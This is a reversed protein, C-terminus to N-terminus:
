YVGFVDLLWYWSMVFVLVLMCLVVGGFFDCYWIKDFLDFCSVQGDIVEVILKGVFVIMNVGYGLFGQVFYMILMICGFYLVCNMMIDVFGGWVYDVKVDVFQLFMKLMDVCMVVVFDCLVCMLYSVKGGWVFWMDFVLWFYDFVFCSDCIVVCVFMLVVVCVEGFLEIVIVYIGVLMIKRLLVFVFMGVYINCVFVVFCVCVNGGGMEVVYGGVVDCVCIVCSDEYICVGVDIVVWVFGFMYNFLYFYGSDFDYLGGCYCVLQVYDGFEDVEVFYFCDYGFCKVVEDCWCKLVDVDCEINVVILYGFVLVCDIDYWVICLKVFLLMEFGMDWICKVDGELMFQVFMDIDCVFGGILQGGNCGSVVWGVWLVEFVIVLYGCEVFNFVVFLGMFGVGIVCVDVDIMGVFLVYCIMDNVIVVYYLVVYLQNVFIQMILFVFYFFEFCSVYVIICCGLNLCLNDGYM